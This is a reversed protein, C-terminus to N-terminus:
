AQQAEVKEIAASDTGYGTVNFTGKTGTITFSEGTGSVTGDAYVTPSGWSLYTVIVHTDDLWYLTYEREGGKASGIATFDSCVINSKLAGEEGSITLVFTSEQMSSSVTFNFTYSNGDLEHIEMPKGSPTIFVFNGSKSVTFRGVGNAIEVGNDTTKLQATFGYTTVAFSLRGDYDEFTEFPQRSLAAYSNSSGTSFVVVGKGNVFDFKGKEENAAANGKYVVSLAGTARDLQYTGVEYNGSYYLLNGVGDFYWAYNSGTAAFWKGAEPATAYEFTKDTMNLIAISIEDGITLLYSDSEGFRIYSGITTDQGETITVTYYGDFEISDSGNTFTDIMGNEVVVFKLMADYDGPGFYGQFVYDSTEKTSYQWTREKGNLNVKVNAGDMVYGVTIAFGKYDITMKGDYTVGSETYSKGDVRLTAANSIDYYTGAGEGLASMVNGKYTLTRATLDLTATADLKDFTVTNGNISYSGETTTGDVDFFTYAGFGDLKFMFGVIGFAGAEDGRVVFNNEVFRGNLIMSDFSDGTNYTNYFFEIKKPDDADYAGYGPLGMRSYYVYSLGSHGSAENYEVLAYGSIDTGLMTVTGYPTQIEHDVRYFYSSYTELQGFNDTSYAAPAGNIEPLNEIEELSANLANVFVICAPDGWWGSVSLPSYIKTGGMMANTSCLMIPGISGMGVSMCFAGEGVTPAANGKFILEQLREQGFFAYEGITEVNEGIIIEFINGMFFAMPGIEEVDNGVIVFRLLSNNFVAGGAVKTINVPVEYVIENGVYDYLVGNDIVEGKSNASLKKLTHQAYDIIYTTRVVSDEDFKYIHTEEYMDVLSANVETEHDFISANLGIGRYAVTTGDTEHLIGQMQVAEAMDEVTYEGFSTSQVGLKARAAEAKTGSEGEVFKNWAADSAIFNLEADNERLGDGFVNEGLAPVDGAFGVEMISASNFAGNGLSTVTAPIAAISLASNAFANAGIATASGLDIMKVSSNAFASDGITGSFASLDVVSIYNNNAFASASIAKVTAPVKVEVAHLYRMNGIASVNKEKFSMPITVASGYKQNYNYGEISSVVWTEDELKAFAFGDKTNDEPKPAWIATATKNEAFSWAALSAGNEDTIPTSDVAWGGFTFEGTTTAVGLDYAEGFTVDKTANEVTNGQGADLTITYTKPQWTATLEIDKKVPTSFDYEAGDLQWEKFEYGTRTPDTPKSATGGDKVTQTFAEIGTGSFKVTFKTDNCAVLTTAMILVLLLCFLVLVKRKKM